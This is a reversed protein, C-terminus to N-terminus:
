ETNSVLNNLGNLPVSQKKRGCLARANMGTESGKLPILKKTWMFSKVDKV